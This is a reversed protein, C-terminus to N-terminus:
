AEVLQTLLRRGAGQGVHDPRIYISNECTFRYAPRDRFQTAYAYGIVRGDLSAALFPWGRELIATIKESWFAADPPVEDFSATGNLVHHAYIAAIAEADAPTAPGIEM